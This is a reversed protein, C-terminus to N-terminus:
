GYIEQGWLIRQIISEAQPQDLDGDDGNVLEMVYKAGWGQAALIRSLGNEIDSISIKYCMCEEKKDWYHEITSGFDETEDEAYRDLLEVKKGSLLCRAVKDEFCDDDKFAVENKNNDCKYYCGLWSSGYLATSFLNVLDDHTIDTVITKTRM